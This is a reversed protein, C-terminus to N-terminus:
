GSTQALTQDLGLSRSLRVVLAKSVTALLWAIFVLIAASGLRPLFVFIETLFTNLPQSVTTLNLVNLAAVVALIMIIWFVISAVLREVNIGEERHGMTWSALRNDFDTRKLLNRVVSAVIAAVIWGLILILLAAALNSIIGFVLTSQETSLGPLTFSSPLAPVAAPSPEQALLPSLLALSELEPSNLISQSFEFM